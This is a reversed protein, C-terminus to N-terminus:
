WRGCGPYISVSLCGRGTLLLLLIPLIPSLLASLVCSIDREQRMAIILVLPVFGWHVVPKIAKFFKTPGSKWIKSM